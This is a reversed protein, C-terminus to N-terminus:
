TLFYIESVQVENPFKQIILQSIKMFDKREIKGDNEKFLVGCCLRRHSKSSPNRTQQVQSLLGFNRRKQYIKPATQM